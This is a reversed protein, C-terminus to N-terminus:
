NLVASTTSGTPANDRPHSLREDALQPADYSVDIGERMRQLGEVVIIDGFGLDGEVLVRGERREIIRVPKRIAKGDSVSWVYAGETGWQVGIETVVPFEEGQVEVGVRFSMGPRLRDDDNDVKARVVFTRTKPDIRSGIDVIEGRVGPGPAGWTELRVTNGAALEGIFLEPIEFSVLLQRRDDLTTVLTDPTIRDGRDIDTSGVHGDFPAELTRDELAIQARKLEVRALEVATRAADLVTPLVAGSGASRQYRDYLREADELQLAAQEVALMEKRRDLEVLVDGERVFQGPNFRVRVVEGSAAPYLEASVAARSTGVAEGRTRAHEFRLPEVIVPVSRDVAARPSQPSDSCAAMILATVSMATILLQRPM